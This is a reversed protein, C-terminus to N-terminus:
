KQYSQCELLMEALLKGDYPDRSTNEFCPGSYSVFIGENLKINQEQAINIAQQRLNKDYANALSFFRPGTNKTM